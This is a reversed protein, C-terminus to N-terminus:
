KGHPYRPETDVAILRDLQGTGFMSLINAGTVGQTGIDDISYYGYVGTGSGVGPVDSTFTTNWFVSVFGKNPYALNVDNGAHSYGFGGKLQHQGAGSFIQTLSLDVFNRTTIDHDKIQIRPLNSYGAVQRYQQPM